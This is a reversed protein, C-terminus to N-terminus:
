DRLEYTGTLVFVQAVDLSLGSTAIGNGIRLWKNVPGQWQLSAALPGVMFGLFKSVWNFTFESWDPAAKIFMRRARRRYRQDNAHSLLVICCKPPKLLLGSCLGFHLFRQSLWGAVSVDRVVAGLDDACARVVGPSKEM